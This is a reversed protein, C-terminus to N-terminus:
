NLLKHILIHIFNDMENNKFYFLFNINIIDHTTYLINNYYQYIKNVINHPYIDKNLTIDLM